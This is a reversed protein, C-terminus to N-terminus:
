SELHIRVPKFCEVRQAKVLMKKHYELAALDNFIETQEQEITDTTMQQISVKLVLLIEFKIIMKRVPIIIRIVRSVLLTRFFISLAALNRVLEFM